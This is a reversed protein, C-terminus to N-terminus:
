NKRRWQNSDGERYRIPPIVYNSHVPSVLRWENEEHFAGHKILAAIKIFIPEAEAFADYYSQTPHKENSPGQASALTLMADLVREAVRHQSDSDYICRGVQYGQKGACDVLSDPYFGISVGKGHPCYGRWQSLLNGEESFSGVFILPGHSMRLKLWESLQLLISQDDRTNTELRRRIMSDMLDALHRLEAADNLYHVETLWLSRSEVIGLLGQLSTYHFLTKTPPDAFLEVMLNDLM